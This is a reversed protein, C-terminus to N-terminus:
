EILRYKRGKGNQCLTVETVIGNEDCVVNTIVPEGNLKYKSGSDVGSICDSM